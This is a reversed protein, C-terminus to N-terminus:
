RASPLPNVRIERPPVPYRPTRYNLRMVMLSACGASSVGHGMGQGLYGGVGHRRAVAQVQPAIRHPAEDAPQLGVRKTVIGKCAVDGRALRAIHVQALQVHAAVAHHAGGAEDPAAVPGVDLHHGLEFPARAELLVTALYPQRRTLPAHVVGCAGIGHAVGLGHALHHQHDRLFLQGLALELEIVQHHLPERAGTAHRAQGPVGHTGGEGLQGGHGVGGGIAHGIHDRVQHLQRQQLAVPPLAQQRLALGQAVADALVDVTVQAVGVEGDVAHGLREVAALPM